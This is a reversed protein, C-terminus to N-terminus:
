GLILVRPPDGNPREGDVDVPQSGCIGQVPTFALGQMVCAARGGIWSHRQGHLLGAGHNAEAKLCVRCDRPTLAPKRMRTTAASEAM